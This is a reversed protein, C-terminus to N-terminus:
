ESHKGASVPISRPKTNEAKPLALRLIGDSYTAEVGEININQALQLQRAYRGTPRELLLAKGGEVSRQPIEVEIRVTNEHFRVSIDEVRVGPLAASVIFGDANEHIDLPLQRSKPSAQAAGSCAAHNAPATASRPASNIQRAPYWRVTHMMM